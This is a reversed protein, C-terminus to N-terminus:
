RFVGLALTKVDDDFTSWYKPYDHGLVIVEGTERYHNQKVPAVGPDGPMDELRLYKPLCEARAAWFTDHVFALTEPADEWARCAAVIRDYLM